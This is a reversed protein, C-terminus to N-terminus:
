LPHSPQIADSIWHVHVQVFELLYHPVPLCPTSCNRLDFLTPHLKSISCCCHSKPLCCSSNTTDRLHQSIEEELLRCCRLRLKSSSYLSAPIQAHWAEGGAKELYVSSGGEKWASGGPRQGWVQSTEDRLIQNVQREVRQRRSRIPIRPTTFTHTQPSPLFQVVVQLNPLCVGATNVNTHLQLPGPQFSFDQTPDAMRAIGLSIWAWNELAGLRWGRGSTVERM